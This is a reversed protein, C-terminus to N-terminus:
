YKSVAAELTNQIQVTSGNSGWLPFSFNVVWVMAARVSPCKISLMFDRHAAEAVSTSRSHPQSPSAWHRSLPTGRLRWTLGSGWESGSRACPRLLGCFSSRRTVLCCGKTDLGPPGGVGSKCAGCKADWSEESEASELTWRHAGAQGGKASTCEAKLTHPPVSVGAVKHGTKCCALSGKLLGKQRHRVHCKLAGSAELNECM